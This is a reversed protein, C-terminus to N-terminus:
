LPPEQMKEPHISRVIEIIITDANMGADMGIGLQDASLSGNALMAEALDMALALDEARRVRLVARLELAGMRRSLVQALQRGTEGFGTNSLGPDALSISLTVRDVATLLAPDALLHQGKSLSQIAPEILLEEDRAANQQQPLRLRSAVAALSRSGGLNDDAIQWIIAANDHVFRSVAGIALFMVGVILGPVLSQAATRYPEHGSSIQSTTKM